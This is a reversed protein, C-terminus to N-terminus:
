PLDHLDDLHIGLRDRLEPDGYQSKGFGPEAGAAVASSQADAYNSVLMVPIRVFEPDNQLRRIIEVGDAGDGDLKRNILILDFATQGLRRVADAETGAGVVEADFQESVYRSLIGHDLSCQGVSLVRPM